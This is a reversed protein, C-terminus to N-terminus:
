ALRSNQPITLCAGSDIASYASTSSKSDVETYLFQLGGDGCDSRASNAFRAEVIIGVVIPLYRKAMAAADVM